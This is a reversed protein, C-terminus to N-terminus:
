PQVSWLLSCFFFGCDLLSRICLLKKIYPCTTGLTSSSKAGLCWSQRMHSTRFRVLHLWFDVSYWQFFSLSLHLVDLWFCQSCLLIIYYAYMYMYIYLDFGCIPMITDRYPTTAGAVLCGWGSIIMCIQFTALLLDGYCHQGLVLWPIVINVSHTVM